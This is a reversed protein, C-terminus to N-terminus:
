AYACHELTTVLSAPRKRRQANSCHSSLGIGERAPFENALFEFSLYRTALWTADVYDDQSRFLDTFGSLVHPACGPQLGTLM